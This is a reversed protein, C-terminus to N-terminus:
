STVRAALHGVRWTVAKLPRRASFEIDLELPEHFDCDNPAVKIGTVDIVDEPPGDDKSDEKGDEKCDDKSEDRPM